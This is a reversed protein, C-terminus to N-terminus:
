LIPAYRHLGQARADEESRNEPCEAQEAKGM